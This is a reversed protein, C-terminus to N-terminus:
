PQIKKYCFGKLRNSNCERCYRLDAANQIKDVTYTLWM